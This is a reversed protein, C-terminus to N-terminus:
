KEVLEFQVYVQKSIKITGAAINAAPAFEADMSSMRARAAIPAPHYDSSTENISLPKGIAMGLVDAMQTAKNKASLLASKRLESELQKAKSYQYTFGNMSVESYKALGQWLRFYKDLDTLKFTLQSSAFFGDKIWRKQRYEKNETLQMRNTQIDKSKIGNKTLYGVVGDILRTHDKAVQETELAQNRISIRWVLEDPEVSKEAIGQVSIHPQISEAALAGLSSMALLSVSIVLQAFRM